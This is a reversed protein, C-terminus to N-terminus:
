ESEKGRKVTYGDHKSNPMSYVHSAINKKGTTIKTFEIYYTYLKHNLWNFAIRKFIRSILTSPFM